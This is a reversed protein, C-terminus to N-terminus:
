ITLNALKLHHETYKKLNTVKFKSVKECVWGWHMTILNGKKIGKVLEKDGIRWSVEKFVGSKLGLKGDEYMLEQTKVLLKDVTTKSNDIVEGWSIRCNDMTELTHPKAEHGTRNWINFVHFSHHVKAGVPVKGVMWKLDRKKFRKKLQQGEMLHDWFGKLKVGELLENGIWYAEVVKEDFPDFINNEDAILKLYPYMVQFDDLMEVLGRDEVGEVIHSFIQSNKDVPGCYKLKNPSFAYRACKILGQM